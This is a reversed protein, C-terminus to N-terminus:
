PNFLDFLSDIEQQYKKGLKNYTEYFKDPIDSQSHTFISYLYKWKQGPLKRLYVPVKGKKDTLKM